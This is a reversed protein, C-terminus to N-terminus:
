DGQEFFEEEFSITSDNSESSGESKVLNISIGTLASALSINQGMKGIAVSRQDEDVWVQAIKNDDLFEVRNVEAPKLAKKIINELSQDSAIIDIKEFGGLEKLIPKIRSGGLGISTGVPDINKDYSMVLMKTKYGAVRVIKKIEILRSNSFSGSSLQAEPIEQEFLYKVFESSARDLILQNENRPEELVEKLLSKIPHGIVCKDSPSMLSKPLFAYTDGIKVTVGNKECKHVSGYVITGVKDIFEKYVAQAEISRIKQTIVQKAKLIEIRGIPESFPVVVVDGLNVNEDIAKAKRLSIELGDDLVTAVVTKHAKIEIEDSKKNYNLDFNVDPYRKKYAALMGECIISSLVNRNLGREDILEDIVESLKM